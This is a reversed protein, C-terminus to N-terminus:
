LNRYKKITEVMALLNEEPTGAVIQNSVGVIIGGNDKASDLCSMTEKVVDEKSGTHLTGSSINGLLTLKPFRERLLDLDMGANGDIEYFGDVGSNGFLDDAVSWLNGDSAFLYYMGYKHCADAIRRLRPLMLEHFSEPSYFPGKNSAFDGGGFIMKVGAEALGKVSRISYEVQIDLHRAVLDPRLIIAELWIMSGYPIGIGGGGIRVVWNKGYQDMQNKIHQPIESSPKSNELNKEQFIISNEIDELTPESRQPYQEILQYLETDPDFRMLRWNSDPNGYLYTRDDIKKTPKEPMRWYDLRLIDHDLAISLDFADKKSKELYKQHAEDGEWLAKAERWQQIGGGVYAERGLIMSAVSSSFGIHHIPIKDVPKREFVALVRERPTM